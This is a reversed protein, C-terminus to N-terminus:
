LKEVVVKELARISGINGLTVCPGRGAEEEGEM